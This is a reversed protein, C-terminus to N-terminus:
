SLPSNVIPETSARSLTRARHPTLIKDVTVEDNAFFRYAAKTAAADKSAQNIPYHPQQYLEQAERHLWKELRADGLAVHEFEYKAWKVDGVTEANL